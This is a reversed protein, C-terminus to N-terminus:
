MTLLPIPNYLQNRIDIWLLTHQLDVNPPTSNQTDNM